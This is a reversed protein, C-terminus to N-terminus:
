DLLFAPYGIFYYKYVQLLTQDCGMKKLPAANSEDAACIAGLLSSTALACTPSGSFANHRMLINVQEIAGSALIDKAASENAAKGDATTTGDQQETSCMEALLDQLAAFANVDDVSLAVNGGGSSGGGMTLSQLQSLSDTVLNLVGAAKLEARVDVSSSDYDDSPAQNASAVANRLIAVASSIVPGTNADTALLEERLHDVV